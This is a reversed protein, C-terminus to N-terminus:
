SCVLFWRTYVLALRYRIFFDHKIIREKNIRMAKTWLRLNQTGQTGPYTFLSNLFVYLLTCGNTDRLKPLAFTGLRTLWLHFLVCALSMKYRCRNRVKLSLKVGQLGNKATSIATFERVTVHHLSTEWSVMLVFAFLDLLVKNRLIYIFKRLSHSLRFITISCRCVKRSLTMTHSLM